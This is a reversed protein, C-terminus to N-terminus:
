TIAAFCQRLEELIKKCIVPYYQIGWNVLFTKLHERRQLTATEIKTDDTGCVNSVIM